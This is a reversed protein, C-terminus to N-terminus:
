GETLLIVTGGREIETGPPPLQGTIFEGDGDIEYFINLRDLTLMADLISLGVLDPMPCTEVVVEVEKKAGLYDFMNLYIEKGYPAAVVSGYYAEASPEDVLVLLVYEPNTAPYTGIFSSIYKGQDIGGGEKYKQATGTKGGVNYGEVFTYPELKNTAKELLMNVTQSTRESIVNRTVQPLVEEEGIKTVLHPKYMDGGNTIGAVATVLQLPTLAVAHGFGMRALDVNKVLKKAMLIGGAEGSITVGTPKGLGFKQLYSYFRDPGIRLALDM